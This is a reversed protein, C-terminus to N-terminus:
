REMNARVFKEYDAVGGFQVRYREWLNPVTSKRFSNRGFGDYGLDAASNGALTTCWVRTDDLLSTLDMASLSRATLQGHFIKNRHDIAEDVRAKLRAYDAGVLSEISRSYLADFGRLFGRFYVQRNAILVSRLAPVDAGGFIPFQYVLHTFLKRVQREAKILSLAFADVCRTPAESALIRDVTQFEDEVSMTGNALEYRRESEYASV